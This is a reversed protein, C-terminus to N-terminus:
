VSALLPSRVNQVRQRQLETRIATGLREGGAVIENAPLSAYCLRIFGGSGGAPMFGDGSRVIVGAAAAASEVERSRLPAPLQAWLYLGGLPVSFHLEPCHEVLAAVLADRRAQLQARLHNLHRAFGGSRLFGALISQNLTPTALDLGAKANALMEFAPPPAVLWGLRLDPSVTKSASGQHIVIGATDLSKLTPPADAFLTEGYVHSEIIPTRMRTCLELIRSRRERGWVRGTPCHGSPIVYIFNPRRRILADELADVDIGERDMAIGIVDAGAARFAAFAGHWTPSECVVADGPSILARALVNLGQQAGGTVLIDSAVAAIGASRLHEALAERLAPMGPIPAARAFGNLDKVASAAVQALATRPVLTSHLWGNGLAISGAEPAVGTSAFTRSHPSALQAWGIVGFSERDKPEAIAVAGRGVYGKLLGRSKLEAYAATITTRSLGLQEAYFRESPLRAGVPIRGSRLADALFAALQLYTPENKKPDARFLLGGLSATRM